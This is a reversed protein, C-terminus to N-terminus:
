WSGLASGVPRNDPTAHPSGCAVWPLRCRNLGFLHFLPTGPPNALLLYPPLTKFANTLTSRLQATPYSRTFRRSRKFANQSIPHPSIPHICHQMCLYVRYCTHTFFGLLLSPPPPPPPCLVCVSRSFLSSLVSSSSLRSPPSPLRLLTHPHIPQM